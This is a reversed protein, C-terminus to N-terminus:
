FTQNLNMYLVRGNPGYLEQVRVDDGGRETPDEPFRTELVNLAGIAVNGGWPHNWAYQVDYTSFSGIRQDPDNESRQQGILNNRLTFGHDDFQWTASSVARWRPEGRDGLTDEQAQGPFPVSKAFLKRSYDANVFLRNGGLRFRYAANLDVGADESEGLNMIPLKIRKLKGDNWREIEVGSFNRGQAISDLVDQADMERVIDEIKIYWYDAGLSLGDIPEAVIGFNYALSTEEQLSENGSTEIEVEDIRIDCDLGCVPTDILNTLGVQTGKYIEDLTPAKFGTGVNGRFLLRSTPLYKFGLKPNTTGGFDSYQDYRAAFQLEFSDAVPFAMEVFAASISRNGEAGKDETVGFVNGQESQPDIIKKYNQDSQQVGIALGAYGGGMEFLDGSVSLNYNTMDTDIVQFPEYSARSVVAMSGQTLQTEFPNFEGTQIASVLEDVLMFGQPNVTDKKSQTHGASLSWTWNSGIEGDVGLTGGVLTKEEEWKRVGWPVARYRLTVDKSVEGKLGLSPQKETAIAQPIQFYGANPAMNWINTNKVARIRSYVTLGPNVDYGVNNMFGIQRTEPAFASTNGYNYSCIPDGGTEVPIRDGKPVQCNEHALLGSGADYNAPYSYTSLGVRTWDRDRYFIPESQRYNLTTLVRFDGQNVGTLYAFETATGGEAKPSSARAYFASGNLDKRTIINVVGGTADSGYIASASDKLVEIREVAAMPITSLDVVGLGAEDPVRKGDLLVLTNSPGLGRLDVNTVTGRVDNVASAGYSGNSSITMSQMLESVTSFGTREISERDIVIVSSVGEVDTRKIHSGTVQIREVKKAPAAEENEVSEQAQGATGILLSSSLSALAVMRQNIIIM